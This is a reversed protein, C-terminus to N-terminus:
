PLWGRVLRVVFGVAPRAYIRHGWQDVYFRGHVGRRITRGGRMMDWAGVRRRFDYDLDM